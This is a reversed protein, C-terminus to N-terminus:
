MIVSVVLSIPRCTYMFLPLIRLLCIKRRTKQLCKINNKVVSNVLSYWRFIDHLSNFIEYVANCIRNKHVGASPEKFPIFECKYRLNNELNTTCLVNHTFQLTPFALQQPHIQQLIMCKCYGAQNIYFLEVHVTYMYSYIGNFTQRKLLISLDHNNTAESVLSQHHIYM